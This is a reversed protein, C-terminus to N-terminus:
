AGDNPDIRRCYHACAHSRGESGGEVGAKKHGGNTELIYDITAPLDQLAMEDASFAWYQPDSTSYKIHGTSFTNGRTNMM